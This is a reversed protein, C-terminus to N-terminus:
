VARSLEPDEAAALHALQAGLAQCREDQVGEPAGAVKLNGVVKAGCRGLHAEWPDLWEGVGWDYSGFVAVARGDVEGDIGKTLVEFDSEKLTDVDLAPCGLAIAGYKAAMSPKFEESSFVSVSAGANAAGRAILRAMKETNSKANWYVVAVSSM